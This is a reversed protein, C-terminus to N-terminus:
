AAERRRRTVASGFRVRDAPLVTAKLALTMQQLARASVEEDISAVGDSPIILELGRLYADHATFLVCNDTTLGALVVRRIGHAELLPELATCYFASNRAKLVFLDRRQPRLAHTFAAGPNGRRSCRRVLQEVSASWDAYNDNAFIVPAGARRAALRLRRLPAIVKRAAEALARGGPFRMHNIVDVLVLATQVRNVAM